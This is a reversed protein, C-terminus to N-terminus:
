TIMTGIYERDDVPMPKNGDIILVEKVGAEISTLAAQAKPIMGGYIVGTKMMEEIDSRTVAQILTGNNMIGAVDTVFFLKKAQLAVAVAAAATDGNINFRNGFQDVAIPAIIPVIQAAFLKELLDVNVDTVDGVFGYTALDKAKAVLLNNDSGSLGIAEIHAQNFKRVITNNVNGSLVMEVIDITEKPTKRLGHIFESEIQLQDLMQKIEGGGGHVLVPQIGREILSQIHEFFSDALQEVSSGGCKFVVVEQM